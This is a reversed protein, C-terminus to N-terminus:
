LQGHDFGAIHSTIIFDDIVVPLVVTCELLSSKKGSEQFIKFRNKELDQCSKEYPLIHLQRRINYYATSAYYKLLSNAMCTLILGFRLM